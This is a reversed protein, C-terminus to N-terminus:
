FYCVKGVGVSRHVYVVEGPNPAAITTFQYENKKETRGWTINHFAILLTMDEPAVFLKLKLMLGRGWLGPAASALSLAPIANLAPPLEFMLVDLVPESCQGFEPDLNETYVVM